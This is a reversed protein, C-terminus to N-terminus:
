RTSRASLWGGEEKDGETVVESESRRREQARSTKTRQMARNRRPRSRCRESEEPRSRSLVMLEWKWNAPCRRTGRSASATGQGCAVGVQPVTGFACEQANRADFRYLGGDPLTISIRRKGVPRLCLQFQQQTIEWALGLTVNKRVTIDQGSASWGWGFDGQVDKRTTDYTRTLMLPLGGADLRIDAFSLRFQGLKLKGLFEVTVSASSQAGNVDVVRLAVQYLGNAYRSSDIQGLAGNNV